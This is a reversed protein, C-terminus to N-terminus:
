SFIPLSSTLFHTSRNHIRHAHPELDYDLKASAAIPILVEQGKLELNSIYRRIRRLKKGLDVLTNKTFNFPYYSRFFEKKM